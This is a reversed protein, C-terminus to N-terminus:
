ELAPKYKLQSVQLSLKPIEAIVWKLKIEASRVIDCGFNTLEVVDNSTSILHELELMNYLEGVYYGFNPQSYYEGKLIYEDYCEFCEKRTMLDTVKYFWPVTFERHVYKHFKEHCWLEKKLDLYENLNVKCSLLLTALEHKPVITSGLIPKQRNGFM